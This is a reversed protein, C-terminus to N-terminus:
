PRGTRSALATLCPRLAACAAPAGALLPGGRLPDYGDATWGTVEGGAEAVLLCGAAVDWPHPGVHVVADARGAAVQATALAGSGLVRVTAGRGDAFAALEALGSWPRGGALECLVLGGAIGDPRHKVQVPAGNLTTGGGRAAVFREGRFPDVIGAAVPAGRHLLALSSCALPLGNAYNATGDVPDVVWLWPGGGTAGEEEGLFAHRPFRAKVRRRMEAELERDVRTVLDHASEKADARLPTLLGARMEAEALSLLAQVLELVAPLPAAPAPM